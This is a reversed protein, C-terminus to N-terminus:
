PGSASRRQTAQARGFLTQLEIKARRLIRKRAPSLQKGGRNVYFSLMSMASQYPSAKRRKSREASRKLSTAIVKASRSKFIGSTLDLADSTDNVRKSWRNVAKGRSSQPAARTSSARKRGTTKGKATAMMAFPAFTTGPYRAFQVCDTAYIEDSRSPCPALRRDDHQTSGCGALVSRTAENALRLPAFAVSNASEGQSWM